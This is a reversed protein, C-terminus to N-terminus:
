QKIAKHSLNQGEVTVTNMIALSIFSPINQVSFYKEGVMRERAEEVKEILSAFATFADALVSNIANNLLPYILLSSSCHPIDNM